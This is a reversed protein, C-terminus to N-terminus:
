LLLLIAKMSVISLKDSNLSHKIRSPICFSFIGCVPETLYWVERGRNAMATNIEHM